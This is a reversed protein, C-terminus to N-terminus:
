VSVMNRAFSAILNKAEIDNARYRQESCRAGSAAFARAIYTAARETGERDRWHRSPSVTALFHVHEELRAPDARYPSPFPLEGFVPGRFWLFLCGVLFLLGAGVGLALRM